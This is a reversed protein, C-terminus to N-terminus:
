IEDSSISNQLNLFLRDGFFCLSLRFLVKYQKGMSYELTKDKQKDLIKTQKFWRLMIHSM